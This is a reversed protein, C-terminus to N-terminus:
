DNESRAATGDHACERGFFDAVHEIDDGLELGQGAALGALHGAIVLDRFDACDMILHDGMVLGAFTQGIVLEVLLDVRHDDGGGIIARKGFHVSQQLGAHFADAKNAVVCRFVPAAGNGFM